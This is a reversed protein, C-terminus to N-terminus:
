SLLQSCSIVDSDSKAPMVTRKYNSARANMSTWVKYIDSAFARALSCTQTPEDSCENNASTNLVLTQIGIEKTNFYGFM